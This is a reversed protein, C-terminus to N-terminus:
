RLRKSHMVKHNIKYQFGISFYEKVQLKTKEDIKVNNEDYVAFKVDDDYILHLLFRMTIFENLKFNVTNEWNIDQKKFPEKYNLFM